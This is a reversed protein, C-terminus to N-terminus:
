RTPPQWGEPVDIVVRLGRKGADLAFVREVSPTMGLETVVDHFADYAADSTVELDATFGFWTSQPFMHVEVGNIKEAVAIVALKAKEITIM